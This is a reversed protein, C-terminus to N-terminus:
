LSLLGYAALSVPDFDRRWAALRPREFRAGPRLRRRALVGLVLAAIFAVFAPVGFPAHILTTLEGLVFVGALSFMPIAAWTTLTRFRMRLLSAILAGPLVLVIAAGIGARVLETM